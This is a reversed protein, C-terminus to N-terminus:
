WVALLVTEASHTLCYFEPDTNEITILANLSKVVTGEKVARIRLPLPGGPTPSLSKFGQYNFTKALCSFHAAAVRRAEEVDDLTFVQGAFNSKLIYQLMALMTEDFMGGRSEVYSYIHRTDPPYQWWHTLKYSDTNLIPNLRLSQMPSRPTTRTTSAPTSRLGYHAPYCRPFHFTEADSHGFTVVGHSKDDTGGANYKTIFLVQCRWSSSISQCQPPSPRPVVAMNFRNQVMMAIKTQVGTAQPRRHTMM